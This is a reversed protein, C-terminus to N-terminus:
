RAARAGGPDGTVYGVLEGAAWASQLLAIWPLARRFRARVDPALARSRVGQVLRWTLLAPLACSLAAFVLRRPVPLVRVRTGAFSRAWVFRERLATGVALDERAQHVRSRPTLWIEYGREVLAGHLLTEHYDDAWADAVAELAERRYAVNSDSVYQAPGEPLPSQYRGFDCWYVAWNLLRESECDVAGGIAALSPHEDVLRLMDRCWTPSAVAHDETLAVVRGRAARLGATRLTDHHERSGGARAARTDLDVPLFRVGPHREALAAADACPPDWPVIVEVRPPDAQRALADLCRALRDRRGSILAVVVSLEPAGEATM